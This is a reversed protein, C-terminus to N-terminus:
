IIKEDSTMTEYNPRGRIETERNDTEMTMAKRGDSKKKEDILNRKEHM